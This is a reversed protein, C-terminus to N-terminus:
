VIADPSLGADEMKKNLSKGGGPVVPHVTESLKKQFWGVLDNKLIKKGEPNEHCRIKGAEYVKALLRKYLENIQDQFLIEGEGQILMSLKQINDNEISNSSHIEEWFTNEAWFECDNGNPSRFGGIKEGFSKILSAYKDGSMEAERATSNLKHTLPKLDRHVPRTTVFRFRIKESYRDYALSRELFSTGIIEEGNKKDRSCLQAITWLQDLELAKVQVFEIEENSSTEWVLTVDDQNDCWVQKLNNNSIMELCFGAAVHDQVGFGHRADTGGTELPPSDHISKSM